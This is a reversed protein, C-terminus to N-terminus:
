SPPAPRRSSAGRAPRSRSRGVSLATLALGLAVLSLGSGRGPVGGLACGGDDEAPADLSARVCERGNCVFGTTCQSTAVCNILCDTKDCKYPSCDKTAGNRSKITHDGDCTNAPLCKKEIEDCTFGSACDPTSRCTTRCKSGDCVYEGCAKTTPTACAGAGDCRAAATETGDTCTGALCEKEAGPFKKCATRTVGDCTATGCADATTPCAGHHPSGAVAVCTGVTAAADCAECVGDCATDCCVGDVCFGSMCESPLTCSDARARGAILTLALVGAAIRLNM